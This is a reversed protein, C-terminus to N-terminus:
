RIVKLKQDKSWRMSGDHEQPKISFIDESNKEWNEVKEHKM